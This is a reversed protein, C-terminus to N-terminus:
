EDAAGGGGTLLHKSINHVRIIQKHCVQVGNHLDLLLYDGVRQIVLKEYSYPLTVGVENVSVSLSDVKVEVESGLYLKFYRKCLNKGGDCNPDLHVHVKYSPDDTCESM